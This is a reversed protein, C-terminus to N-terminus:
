LQAVLEEAIRIDQQQTAKDGGCLLIVLLEGRQTYYVRYGPGHDIKMECVGGKLTRYQGPNGEALRRIRAIIRKAAMADRLSDFWQTFVDTQRIEIM